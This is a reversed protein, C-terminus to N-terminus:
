KNTHFFCCKKLWGLHLIPQLVLLPRQPSAWLGVVEQFVTNNNVHQDLWPSKRKLAKRLNRVFTVLKICNIYCLIFIATMIESRWFCKELLEGRLQRCTFAIGATIWPTNNSNVLSSGRGGLSHLWLDLCETDACERGTNVRDTVWGSESETQVM